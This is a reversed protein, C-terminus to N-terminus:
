AVRVVSKKADIDSKRKDSAISPNVRETQMDTRSDPCQKNNHCMFGDKQICTQAGDCGGVTKYAERRTRHNERHSMM